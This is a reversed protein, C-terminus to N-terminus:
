FYGVILFIGIFGLIGLRLFSLTENRKRTILWLRVFFFFVEAMKTVEQCLFLERNKM